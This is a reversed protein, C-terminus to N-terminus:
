GRVNNGMFIIRPPDPWAAIETASLIPYNSTAGGIGPTKRAFAVRSIGTQRIAYSCLFCPENTTILSFGSLDNTGLTRIAERIALLEAHAFLDSTRNREGAEAVINGESDALLSGVPTDGRAAAEEALEFCRNM